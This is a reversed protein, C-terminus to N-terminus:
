ISPYLDFQVYLIWFQATRHLRPAMIKGRPPSWFTTCFNFICYRFVTIKMRNLHYIQFKPDFDANNEEFICM